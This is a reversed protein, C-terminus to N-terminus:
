KTVRFEIGRSRLYEEFEAKMVPPLKVIYKTKM